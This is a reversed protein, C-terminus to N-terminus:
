HRQAAAIRIRVSLMRLLAQAFDPPVARLVCAVYQEERMGMTPGYTASAGAFAEDGLASVPHTKGLLQGLIVLTQRAASKNKCDIVWVTLTKGGTRYKASVANHLRKDGLVNNRVFTLSMPVQNNRPLMSLLQPIKTAAPMQALLADALQKVQQRTQVGGASPMFRVYAYNRWVHLQADEWFASNEVPAPKSEPTVQRSFVGFADVPQQMVFVGVEVRLDGSAYLASAAFKFKYELVQQAEGDIWKWLDDATYATPPQAVQWGQPASALLSKVQQRTPAPQAWVLPALVMALCSM